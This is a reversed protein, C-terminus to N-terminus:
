APKRKSEERAKQRKDMAIAFSEEYFENGRSGPKRDSIPWDYRNKM